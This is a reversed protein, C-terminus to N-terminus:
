QVVQIHTILQPNDRIFQFLPFTLSRVIEEEFNSNSSVGTQHFLTHLSEHLAILAQHLETQDSNICVKQEGHDTVGYYSDATGEDVKFDNSVELSYTMIGAKIQQPLAM